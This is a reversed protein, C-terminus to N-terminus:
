RGTGFQPGRGHRAVDEGVRGGVNAEGVGVRVRGGACEMDNTAFLALVVFVRKKCRMGRTGDTRAGAALGFFGIRESGAEFAVAVANEMGRGKSAKCALGLDEHKGVVMLAGAERVCEFDGLNGGGDCPSEAQVHREGLCDREAVVATMAGAAVGTFVCEAREDLAAVVVRHPTGVDGQCREIEAAFREVADAVM